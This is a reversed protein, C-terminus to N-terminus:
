MVPSGLSGEVFPVYKVFGHNHKDELLEFSKFMLAFNWLGLAVSPSTWHTIM